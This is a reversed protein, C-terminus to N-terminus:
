SRENFSLLTVNGRRDVGPLDGVQGDIAAVVDVKRQQVRLSGAIFSRRDASGGCAAQVKATLPRTRVLYANVSGIGYVIRHIAHAGSNGLLGNLLELHNGAIIHRLIPSGHAPYDVDNRFGSGVVNVSIQEGEQAVGGNLCLIGEGHINDGVRLRTELGDRNLRWVCAYLCAGGQSAGNLFVLSEVEKCILDRPPLFGTEGADALVIKAKHACLCRHRCGKKRGSYRRRTQQSGILRIEHVAFRREAGARGNGVSYRHIAETYSSGGNREEPIRGAERGIEEGGASSRQRRRINAENRGNAIERDRLTRAQVRQFKVVDPIGPITRKDPCVNGGRRNGANLDVRLILVKSLIRSRACGDLLSAIKGHDPLM